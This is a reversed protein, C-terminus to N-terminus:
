IKFVGTDVFEILVDRKGRLNSLRSSEVEGYSCNWHEEFEVDRGAPWWLGVAIGVYERLVELHLNSGHAQSGAAGEEVRGDQVLTAFASRGLSNIRVGRDVSWVM